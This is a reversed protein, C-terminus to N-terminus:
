PEQLTVFECIKMHVQQNQEWLKISRNPFLSITEEFDDLDDEDM